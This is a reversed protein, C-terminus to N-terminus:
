ILLSAMKKPYTVTFMTIMDPEKGELNNSHQLYVFVDINIYNCFFYTIIPLTFHDVLYNMEFELSAKTGATNNTKLKSSNVKSTAFCQQLLFLRNVEM